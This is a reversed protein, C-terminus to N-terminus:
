GANEDLDDLEVKNQRFRTLREDDSVQEDEAQVREYQQRLTIEPSLPIFIQESNEEKPDSVKSRRARTQHYCFHSVGNPINQWCGSYHFSLRM